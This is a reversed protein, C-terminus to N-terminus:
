RSEEPVEISSQCCLVPPALLMECSLVLGESILIRAGLRTQMDPGGKARLKQNTVGTVVAASPSLREDDSFLPIRSRLRQNEHHRPPFIQVM